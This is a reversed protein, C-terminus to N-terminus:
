AEWEARALPIAQVQRLFRPFTDEGRLARWFNILRGDLDNVLESVGRDASTDALWLRRDAPDRALLVSCGGCFPEVYHRHRPMLAVTRRALHHKGGHTKLPTTPTATMESQRRATIETLM